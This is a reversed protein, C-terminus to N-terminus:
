GLKGFIKKPSIQKFINKSKGQNQCKQREENVKAQTQTLKTQTQKVENKLKQIEVNKLVKDKEFQTLSKKLNQEIVEHRKKEEAMKVKIQLIQNKLTQIQNDKADRRIRPNAFTFDPLIQLITLLLIFSLLKMISM